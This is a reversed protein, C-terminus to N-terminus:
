EISLPKDVFGCYSLYRVMADRTAAAYWLSLGEDEQNSVALWASRGDMARLEAIWFEMGMGEDLCANAWRRVLLLKEDSELRRTARIEDARESGFLEDLDQLFEDLLPYPAEVRDVYHGTPIRGRVVAAPLAPDHLRDVVEPAIRTLDDTLRDISVSDGGNKEAVSHLAEVIADITAQELNM